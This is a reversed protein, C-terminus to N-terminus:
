VKGQIGEWLSLFAWRNQKGKQLETSCNTCFNLFDFYKHSFIASSQFHGIIRIVLNLAAEFSGLLSTRNTSVAWERRWRRSSYVNVQWGALEFWLYGSAALKCKITLAIKHDFTTCAKISASRAPNSRPLQGSPIKQQQRGGEGRGSQSQARPIPHLNGSPIKGIEDYKCLKALGVKRKIKNIPSM